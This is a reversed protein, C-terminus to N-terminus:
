SESASDVSSRQCHQGAPLQGRWKPRWPFLNVRSGNLEEKLGPEDYCISDTFDNFWRKCRQRKSNFNLDVTVPEKFVQEEFSPKLNCESLHEFLKFKVVQNASHQGIGVQLTLEDKLSSSDHVKEQSPTALMQIPT